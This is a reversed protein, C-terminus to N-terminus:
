VFYKVTRKKKLFRSTALKQNVSATIWFEKLSEGNANRTEYIYTSHAAPTLNKRKSFIGLWLVDRSCFKRLCLVGFTLWDHIKM